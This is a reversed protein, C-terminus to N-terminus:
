RRWEWALPFSRFLLSRQTHVLGNRLCDDTCLHGRDRASLWASILQFEGLSTPRSALGHSVALAISGTLLIPRPASAIRVSELCRKGHMPSLWLDDRQIHPSRCDSDRAIAASVGAPPFVM